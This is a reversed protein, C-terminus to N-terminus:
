IYFIWNAVWRTNQLEILYFIDLKSGMKYELAWYPFM